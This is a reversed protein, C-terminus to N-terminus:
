IFNGREHQREDNEKNKLRKEKINTVIDLVLEELMAVHKHLDESSSTGAADKSTSLSDDDGVRVGVPNGGLDGDDDSDQNSTLVPVGELEKKLGDLVNNNIENTYPKFMVMYDMEMERVTPIIYPHM